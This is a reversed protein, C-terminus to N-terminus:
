NASGHPCAQVCMGCFARNEGDADLVVQRCKGVDYGSASIANAPCADVCAECDGCQGIHSGAAAPLPGTTFLTGIRIRPGFDPTILLSSIGIWGLGALHGLVKQSVGNSRLGLEADVDDYTLFRHDPLAERIARYISIAKEGLRAKCSQMLEEDPLAAVAAADYPLFFVVCMYTEGRDVIGALSAVGWLQVGHDRFLQDLKNMSTDTNNNLRAANRAFQM